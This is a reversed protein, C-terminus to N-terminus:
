NEEVTRLLDLAHTYLRGSAHTYVISGGLRMPTSEASGVLRMPTSVGLRM